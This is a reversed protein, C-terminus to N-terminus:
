IEVCFLLVFELNIISTFVLLDSNASHFYALVKMEELLM